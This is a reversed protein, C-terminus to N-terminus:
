VHRGPQEIREAAIFVSLIKELVCQKHRQDRDNRDRGDGRRAHFDVRDEVVDDVLQRALVFENSRHPDAVAASGGFEVEVGTKGPLFEHSRKSDEALTVVALVQELVRHERRQDRDKSEGGDTRECTLDGVDEPPGNAVKVESVTTSIASQAPSPLAAITSAAWRFIGLLMESPTVADPTTSAAVPALPTDTLEDARPNQRPKRSISGPWTSPEVPAPSTFNNAAAPATTPTSRMTGANKSVAMAPPRSATNMAHRRPRNSRVNRRVARSKPRRSCALASM